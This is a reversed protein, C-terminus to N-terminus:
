MWNLGGNACNPGPSETSTAFDLAHIGTKGDAGGAGNTGDQGHTGDCM